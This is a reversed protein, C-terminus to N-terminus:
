HPLFFKSQDVNRRLASPPQFECEEVFVHMKHDQITLTHM